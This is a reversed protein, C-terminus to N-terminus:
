SNDLPRDMLYDPPPVGFKNRASYKKEFIMEPLFKKEVIIEPLIKKRRVDCLDIDHYYMSKHM